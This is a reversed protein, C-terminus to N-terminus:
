QLIKEVSSLIEKKDVVLPLSFVATNELDEKRYRILSQVKIKPIGQQKLYRYFTVKYQFKMNLDEIGDLLNKLSYLKVPFESIAFEKVVKNMLETKSYLFNTQQLAIIEFMKSTTTKREQSKAIEGLNERAAASLENLYYRERDGLLVSEKLIFQQFGKRSFLKRKTFLGIHKSEEGHTVLAKNAVSNIYVHHICPAINKQVYDYSCSLYDAMEDITMNFDDEILRLYLSAISKLTQRAGDIKVLFENEM